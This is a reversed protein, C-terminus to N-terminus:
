PQPEWIALGVGVGAHHIPMYDIVEARTGVAEMAAAVAVWLKTEAGSGRLSDTEVDFIRAVEHSRGTELRRLVWADLTSDLWGAMPGGPDGSLGGSALIGVRKGSFGLAKAIEAGFAHIRRGTIAPQVHCNIHIPILPLGQAIRGAPEVLAAGVGRDPDGVPRFEARGEAVDFGSAVTEDLVLDATVPDCSFITRQGNEGMSALSADGWIEDGVFVHLQPMNADSFYRSRDALLVVLADLRAAQIRSALRDFVAEIRAAYAGLLDATEQSASVPQPVSGTLSRYVDGWLRQDRYLLPSHSLAAGFVLPM